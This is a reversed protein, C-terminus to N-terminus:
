RTYPVPRSPNGKIRTIKGRRISPFSGGGVKALRHSVKRNLHSVKQEHKGDEGKLEGRNEMTIASESRYRYGHTACTHNSGQIPHQILHKERSCHHEEIRNVSTRGDEGLFFPSKQEMKGEKDLTDFDEGFDEGNEERTIWRISRRPSANVSAEASHTSCAHIWSTLHITSSSTEKTQTM